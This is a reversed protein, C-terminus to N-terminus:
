QKRRGEHFTEVVVIVPDIMGVAWDAHGGQMMAGVSRQWGGYQKGQWLNGGGKKWFENQL